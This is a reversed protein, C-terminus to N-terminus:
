FPGNLALTMALIMGIQAHPYGLLFGIAFSAYGDGFGFGVQSQDANPLNEMVIKGLQYFFVGIVFSIVGHIM